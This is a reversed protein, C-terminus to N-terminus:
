CGWYVLTAENPVEGVARSVHVLVWFLRASRRRWPIGSADLNSTVPAAASRVCASDKPTKLWKPDQLTKSQHSRVLGRLPEPGVAM